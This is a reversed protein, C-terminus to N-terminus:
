RISDPSFQQPQLKKRTMLMAKNPFRNSENLVGSKHPCQYTIQHNVNEIWIELSWSSLREGCIGWSGYMRLLLNIGFQHRCCNQGVKQTRWSSCPRPSSPNWRSGRGSCCTTCRACAGWTPPM